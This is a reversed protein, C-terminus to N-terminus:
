KETIPMKTTRRLKAKLHHAVTEFDAPRATKPTKNKAYKRSKQPGKKPL